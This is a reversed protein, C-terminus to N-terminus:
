STCSGSINLYIAGVDGSAALNVGWSQGPSVQASVTGVQDIQATAAVPDRSEQVITVTGTGVDTTSTNNSGEGPMFQVTVSQCHNDNGNVTTFNQTNCYPGGNVCASDRYSFTGNSSTYTGSSTQFDWNVTGYVGITATGFAYVPPHQGKKGIDAVRLRYIGMPLADTQDSGRAGSLLNVTQWVKGTGEPRQLVLQTGPIVASASWSFAIPQGATQAPTVLLKLTPPAYVVVTREQSAYVVGAPSIDAIRYDYRGPVHTVIAGSGGLRRPLHIFTKWGGQTHEQVVIQSRTPIGQASWHFSYPINAVYPSALAWSISAVQAATAPAGALALPVAAAAAFIGTVARRVLCRRM